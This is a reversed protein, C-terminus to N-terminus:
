PAPSMMSLYLFHAHLFIPNLEIRPPHSNIGNVREAWVPGARMHHQSTALPEVDRHIWVVYLTEQVPECLGLGHHPDVDYRKSM